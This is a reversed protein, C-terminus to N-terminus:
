FGGNAPWFAFKLEATPPRACDAYISLSALYLGTIKNTPGTCPCSTSARVPNAFRMLMISVPYSRRSLSCAFSRFSPRLHRNNIIGAPLGSPMALSSGRASCPIPRSSTRNQPCPVHLSSVNQPHGSLLLCCGIAPSFM